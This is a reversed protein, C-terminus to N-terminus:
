PQVTRYFGSGPHPTTDLYELLGSAPMTRAGRAIDRDNGLVSYRHEWLLAGDAAAYKATYYDLDWETANHQSFGTVIANGSLDLALSFAMDQGPGNCRRELLLHGDAAAYRATYFDGDDRSQSTRKYSTGTVLVNGNSDIVVGAPYNAFNAPGNYRREWLLAGDAAAYRATYYDGQSTGTVVVNGSADVALGSAADDGNAPGYYRRQWLVSGDAGSYKMTLMDQGTIGNDTTGTVVMDGAADSVVKFAQDVSNSVVGSYRHVWAETVAAQAPQPGFALTALAVLAASIYLPITDLRM